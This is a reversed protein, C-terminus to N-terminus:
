APNQSPLDPGCVAPTRTMERCRQVAEVSKKTLGQQARLKALVAYATPSGLLDKDALKSLRDFAENEHGPVSALAEGLDAEVSPSDPTNSNLARLTGIAWELRQKKADDTQEVPLARTVTDGWADKTSTTKAPAVSLEGGSRVTALAALRLARNKIPDKGPTAKALDSYAEKAQRLALQGAGEDLQKEGKAVLQPPTPKPAIFREQFIAGGCADAPTPMAALAVPVLSLALLALKKM